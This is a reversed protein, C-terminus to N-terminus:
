APIPKEMNLLAKDIDERLNLLRGKIKFHEGHLIMKVIEGIKEGSAWGGQFYIGSASEFERVMKQIRDLEERMKKEQYTSNDIACQHGAQFGKAHAAQKDAEPTAQEICRRIISAVFYDDLSKHINRACATRTFVKENKIELLGWGKPLEGDRVLDAPTVIYWSDCYQFIRDAKAPNKIESLWDSRSVKVEIGIIEFRSKWVNMVIADAFRTAYGTTAAVQELFVFGNEKSYHIKLKEIVEKATMKLGGNAM